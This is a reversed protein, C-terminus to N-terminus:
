HQTENSQGKMMKYIAVEVVWQTETGNLWTRFEDLTMNKPYSVGLSSLQNLIYGMALEPATLSRRFTLVNSM